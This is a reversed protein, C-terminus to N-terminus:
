QLSISLQFTSYNSQKQVTQICEMFTLSCILKNICTSYRSSTSTSTASTITAMTTSPHTATRSRPTTTVLCLRQYNTRTQKSQPSTSAQNAINSFDTQLHHFLPKIEQPQNAPSPQKAMFYRQSPCAINESTKKIYIDLLLCGFESQSYLEKTENKWKTEKM